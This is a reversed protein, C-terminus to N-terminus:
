RKRIVGTSLWQVLTAALHVAAQAAEVSVPATTHGGEHRDRHGHWLTEVMATVGDISAPTADKAPIVLEYKHRADRLHSSVKGLTPSTEKPLFFPCAVAEVARIADYYALGPDPRPAYAHRWADSLRDRAAAKGSAAASRGAVRAAETVTADVIRELGLPGPKSVVRYASGADALLTRLPDIRSLPFLKLQLWLHLVCDVVDLLRESRVRTLAHAYSAGKEPALRLRLMVRRALEDDAAKAIWERLAPELHPAAGDYLTEDPPLGAERASLPQWQDKRM